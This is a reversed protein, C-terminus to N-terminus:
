HPVLGSAIQYSKCSGVCRSLSAILIAVGLMAFGAASRAPVLIPPVQGALQYTPASTSQSLPSLSLFM